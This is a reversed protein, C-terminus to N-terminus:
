KFVVPKGVFARKRNGSGTLIGCQMEDGHKRLRNWDILTQHDKVKGSRSVKSSPQNSIKQGCEETQTQRM